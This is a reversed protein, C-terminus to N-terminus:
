AFKHCQKMRPISMTLRIPPHFPPPSSSSSFSKGSFADLICIQLLSNHKFISILGGDPKTNSNVRNKKRGAENVQRHTLRKFFEYRTLRKVDSAHLVSPKKESRHQHIWKSWEARSSGPISNRHHIPELKIRHWSLIEHCKRSRAEADITVFTGFGRLGPRWSGCFYLSFDKITNFSHATSVWRIM